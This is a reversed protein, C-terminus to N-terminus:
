NISAKLLQPNTSTRPTPKCESFDRICCARIVTATVQYGAHLSNKRAVHDAFDAATANALFTDNLM